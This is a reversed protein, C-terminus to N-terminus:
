DESESDSEVDGWWLGTMEEQVMVLRDVVVSIDTDYDTVVIKPLMKKSSELRLWSLIRNQSTFERVNRERWLSIELADVDTILVRPIIM